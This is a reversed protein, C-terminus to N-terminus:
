YKLVPGVRLYSVTTAACRKIPRASQLKKAACSVVTLRTQNTVCVEKEPGLLEDLTTLKKAKRQIPEVVQVENEEEHEFVSPTM